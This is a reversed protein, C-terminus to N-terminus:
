FIKGMESLKFLISSLITNDADLKFQDASNSDFQEWPDVALIATYIHQILKKADNQSIQEVQSSFLHAVVLLAKVFGSCTKEEL